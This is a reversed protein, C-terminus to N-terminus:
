SSLSAGAGFPSTAQACPRPTPATPQTARAACPSSRPAARRGCGCAGGGVAGAAAAEKCGACGDFAACGTGFAGPPVALLVAEVVAIGLVMGPAIAAQALSSYLGARGPPAAEHLYVVCAGWEGGVALGQAFRCAALLAPAAAGASAHTPLAGITATPVLIAAISWLMAPRRGFRDAIHGFLISGAPRSVFGLAYVGWVALLAAAPDNKPFFVQTLTASLQSYVTFDYRHTHTNPPHAPKPTHLHSTPSGSSRPAPAQRSPLNLLQRVM